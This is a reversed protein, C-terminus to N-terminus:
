RPRDQGMKATNQNMKALQAGVYRWRPGIKFRRVGRMPKMKARLLEM